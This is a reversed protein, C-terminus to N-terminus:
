ESEGDGEASMESGFAKGQTIDLGDRYLMPIKWSNKQEELFGIEMLLKIASNLSDGKLELIDELTQTNHEAKSRRFKAVYSSAEDGAEAFLTDTVRQESLKEQAGRIAESLILVDGDKFVRPARGEIQIQKERAYNALDILNRPPKVDNGDRIRSMMWNFTTPKREAQDVKEPFIKYFIANDDAGNLGLIEVFEVNDRVRRALLNLLDGEEWVIEAKRANIHTLNVFGKGIIKRFLDRRLFLKLRIRDFATLDLYTRLLARLAPIEIEPFGQFAEDLRDLAVWASHDIEALCENLLKLAVEHRVEKPGEEIKERQGFEVRPTVIPIGSESFTFEVEAASPRRFAKQVSNMIRGFVTEAKGDKSKLGSSDLLRSLKAVNESYDDGVIDILWNGVLSLLYAKWLSVYQGETMVQQQVLRQFIPNGAPNFGEIVEVGRLQEISAYRKKLIRYVATKGTGKDGAIVDAKDNILANFAENEVFYKELSNDFEAVSSGLDLKRLIDRIVLVKEVNM